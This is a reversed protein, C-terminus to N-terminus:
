QKLFAILDRREEAKPVNFSMNNDPVVIDPDSLWEELTAGNWTVGLNKLGASYTFGPVSGAKRGFVGALRPGKRDAEMAHCGTCRKEFVAKGRVADGDGALAAERGGASKGLMSLAKVDGESLKANWHLALYQMPPMEGSKAEQVIKATLVQQEEVPMQQWRSLDMHKRAEVIDREILWSGPAIRAYVPWRTESSHCDACKTVLVAKADAPMNAGQLLTGLGEAPEVRPNGFPHVYGLSAVAAVTIAAAIWPRM